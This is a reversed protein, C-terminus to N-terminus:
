RSIGPNRRAPASGAGGRTPAAFRNALAERRGMESNQARTNADERSPSGGYRGTGSEKEGGFKERVAARQAAEKEASFVAAEAGANGYADNVVRSDRYGQVATRNAEMARRKAFSEVSASGIKGENQVQAYGSSHVVDEKKTKMMYKLLPNKDM